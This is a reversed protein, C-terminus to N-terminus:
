IKNGHRVFDSSTAYRELVPSVDRARTAALPKRWASDSTSRWM